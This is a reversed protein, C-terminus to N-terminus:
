DRRRVDPGLILWALLGWAAVLSQEIHHLAEVQLPTM